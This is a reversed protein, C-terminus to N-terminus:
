EAAVVVDLREPGFELMHDVCEWTFGPALRLTEGPFLDLTEELVVRGVMRTLHNGLCLHAGAGFALHEPADPRDLRFEGADEYVSEDRGSSGIGLMLHEGTHVPCGGLETEAKASRFLFMVPAEYRLSEEIAVPILTPDSRLRDAFGTRDTLLRHLLNGIM